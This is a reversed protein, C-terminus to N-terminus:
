RATIAGYDTSAGNALHKCTFDCDNGCGGICQAAVEVLKRMAQPRQSKIVPVKEENQAGPPEGTTPTPIM